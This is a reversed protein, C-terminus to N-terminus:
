NRFPFLTVCKKLPYIPKLELLLEATWQQKKKKNTQNCKCILNMQRDAKSVCGAIQTCQSIQMLYYRDCVVCVRSVLQMCQRVGAQMCLCKSGQACLCVSRFVCVCIWLSATIRLSHLCICVYAYMCLKIIRSILRATVFLDACWRLGDDDLDNNAFLWSKSSEIQKHTHTHPQGLFLSLSIIHHSIIHYSISAPCLSLHDYNRVPWVGNWIM